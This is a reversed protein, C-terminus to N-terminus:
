QKLWTLFGDEPIENNLVEDLKGKAKDAWKIFASEEIKGKRRLAYRRKYEKRYANKIPNNEIEKEYKKTAGIAVCPKQSGPAIRNCYMADNRGVPVFYRNCNECQKIVINGKVVNMLEFYLIDALSRFWYSDVFRPQATLIFDASEKEETDRIKKVWDGVSIEKNNIFPTCSSALKLDIGLNEEFTPNLKITYYSYRQQMNGNEIYKYGDKLNSDFCIHAAEEFKKKVENYEREESAIDFENTNLIKNASLISNLLLHKAAFAQYDLELFDILLSGTEYVQQSTGGMSTIFLTKKDESLTLLAKANGEM